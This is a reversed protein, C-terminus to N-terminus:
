AAARAADTLLIEGREAVDEGLRSARNVEVGWMDGYPRNLIVDGWGIGIACALVKHLAEACRRAAAVTPFVAAFNDAWAKVWTGGHDVVLRRGVGRFAEVEALASDMGATECLRSFGCMDAILVARSSM